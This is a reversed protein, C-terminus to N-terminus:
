TNADMFRDCIENVQVTENKESEVKDVWYKVNIHDNLVHVVEGEMRDTLEQVCKDYAFLVWPSLRDERVMNLAQGPTVVRFFDRLPVQKKQCWSKINQCSKETQSVPDETSRLYARYDDLNKANCWKYDPLGERILWDIYKYASVVYERTTFQALEIFRNYYPSKVFEEFDKTKGRRNLGSRMQWHQFLRHGKINVVDARKEFRRKKDCMHKEFWREREFPKNCFKCVMRKELAM